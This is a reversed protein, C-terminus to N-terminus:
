AFVHIITEEGNGCTPCTPSVGIGWKSRRYNTLLREHAAMWMFTQIRHPGKCDWIKKWEGDIHRYNGRQLDYVSRITFHRTNTGKWGIIDSGDVDM